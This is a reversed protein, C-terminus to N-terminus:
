AHLKIPGLIDEQFTDEQSICLTKRLAQMYTYAILLLIHPTSM